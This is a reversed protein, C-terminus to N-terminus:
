DRGVHSGCMPLDPLPALQQSRNWELRVLELRAWPGDRQDVKVTRPTSGLHDELDVWWDRRGGADEVRVVRWPDPAVEVRCRWGAGTIWLLGDSSVAM